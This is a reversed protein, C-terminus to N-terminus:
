LKNKAQYFLRQRKHYKFYILYLNICIISNFIIITPLTVERHVGMDTQPQINQDKTHTPRDYNGLIPPFNCKWARKPACALLHM